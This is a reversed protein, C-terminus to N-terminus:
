LSATRRILEEDARSKAERARRRRGALFLASGCLNAVIVEVGVLTVGVIILIKKGTM